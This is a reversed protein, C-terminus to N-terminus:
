YGIAERIDAPLRAAREDRCRDFYGGDDYKDRHNESEHEQQYDVLWIHRRRNLKTWKQCFSVTGSLHIREITSLLGERVDYNVQIHTMDDGEPSVVGGSYSGLIKNVERWESRKFQVEGYITGGSLDVQGSCTWTFSRATLLLGKDRLYAVLFEEM